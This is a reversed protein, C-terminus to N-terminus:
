RRDGRVYADADSLVQKLTDLKLLRLAEDLPKMLLVKIEHQAEPMQDDPCKALFFVVKKRGNKFRPSRYIVVRRFGTDILASVGTEERVERLATEFESEDGEVHGKPFGFVTGRVLVYMPQGNMMKYLVAGCSKEARDDYRPIHKRNKTM